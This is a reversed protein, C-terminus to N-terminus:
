STRQYRLKRRKEENRQVSKATQCDTRGAKQDTKRIQRCRQHALQDM